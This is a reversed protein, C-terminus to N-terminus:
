SIHNKDFGHVSSIMRKTYEINTIEINRSRRDKRRCQRFVKSGHLWITVLLAFWWMKDGIDTMLVSKGASDSWPPWRKWTARLVVETQKRESRSTGFDKLGHSCRKSKSPTLIFGNPHTEESIWWLNQCIFIVFIWTQDYLFEHEIHKLHIMYRRSCWKSDKTRKEYRLIRIRNSQTLVNQFLSLIVCSINHRWIFSMMKTQDTLFRDSWSWAQLLVSCYM